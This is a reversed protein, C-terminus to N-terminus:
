GLDESLEAFFRLRRRQMQMTEAVGIGAQSEFGPIWGLTTDSRSPCAVTDM